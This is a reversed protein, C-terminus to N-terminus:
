KKPAPIQLLPELFNTIKEKVRYCIKSHVELLNSHLNEADKSKGREEVMTDLHKSVDDDADEGSCYTYIWVLDM